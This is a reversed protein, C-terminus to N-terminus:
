EAELQEVLLRIFKNSGVMPFTNTVSEFGNIEEGVSVSYGTNVWNTSLMSDSVELHYLIGSDPDALRVYVYKFANSGGQNDVLHVPATGADGADAPNGGFAYEHLNVIGDSDDDDLVGGSLGHEEAFKEFGTKEVISGGVPGIEFKLNDFYVYESVATGNQDFGIFPRCSTPIGVSVPFTGSYEIHHVGASLVAFAADATDNINNWRFQVDGVAKALDAPIYIDFSLTYEDGAQINYSSLDVPNASPRIASYANDATSIVFVNGSATSFGAPAAVVEGSLTNATQVATGALTQNNGSTTGAAITDFDEEWLVTQELPPPGDLVVVTLEAADTEGAPDEVHVSFTNTGIDSEGPTGSLTGDAAVGLWAPGSTKSFVLADGNPDSAHDALTGVYSYGQQVSGGNIPDSAFEPAVNPAWIKFDLNDMYVYDALEAGDQHFWIFPQVSTPNFDSGGTNVPFTGTYEIHHVGASLTAFDSVTPGNGTNSDDKWRFNVGGVSVALNTPIYIDFSISYHDGDRFYYSSLDIAIPARIASYKNAGTSLLVVNGSASTFAAPAEVVKASLTNAAEVVTGALSSSGTTAGEFDEKLLSTTPIIPPENEVIVSVEDIVINAEDDMATLRFVYTGEILNSASLTVTNTGSLIATNPGSVQVWETSVVASDDSAAGQIVASVPPFYLALDPGASVSLGTGTGNAALSLTRWRGRAWAFGDGEAVLGNSDTKSQVAITDGESVLINRFSHNQEEYDVTAPSNTATGKVVGNVLFQYVCEGDLEQLATITVDYVGTSGSFTTEARAFKDRNSVTAANIALANNGNDKYYNVEGATIVPFDNVAEYVYSETSIRESEPANQATTGNASSHYLIFRDIAHGKSRGAIKIEHIGPEYHVKPNTVFVGHVPEFNTGWSWATQSQVWVKTFKTMTQTSGDNATMQLPTGTEFKVYTDNGQDGASVADYQKSRWRFTYDGATKIEFQFTSIGNALADDLTTSFKQAGNWEIWGDGMSGAMTPDDLYTSPQVVWDEHLEGHEPEIVVMGGNEIWVGDTATEEGGAGYDRAPYDPEPNPNPLNTVFKAWFEAITDCDTPSGFIWHVEVADSFDVGGTSISSHSPYYNEDAIVWDAELWYAKAKKNQSTMADQQFSTNTSRYSPTAPASPDRATSTGNGDNITKYDCKSKVYALDAPTTQEENWDSHQVVIVNSKITAEPIGDAILAAVWDATIDSQGAEAVWAKGGAELVPKVKAAIKAVAGNWDPDQPSANVWKQDELGFVLKFFQPSDIFNNDNQIGYAGHVAFYNVNSYDEHALMCGLAAISHIDDPDHNSDYQPILIDTAANFFGLSNLASMIIACMIPVVIKRM